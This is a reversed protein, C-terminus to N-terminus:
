LKMAQGIAVRVDHPLREVDVRIKSDVRFAVPVEAGGGGNRWVSAHFASSYSPSIVDRNLQFAEVVVAPEVPTYGRRGAPEVPQPRFRPQAAPPAAPPKAPPVTHETQNGPQPPVGTPARPDVGTPARPDVGTPARADVQPATPARADVAPQTRARPDVAPQTAGRPDVAPQSAGRPDVAPQTAGRPNVAGGAGPGAMPSVVRMPTLDRVTNIESLEGVALWRQENVKIVDGARFALPAPGTGKHQEWVRQHWENSLSKQVSFRNAAYAARVQGPTVPEAVSRGTSSGAPPVTAPKGPGRFSPLRPTRGLGRFYVHPLAAIALDGAASPEGKALARGANVGQAVAFSRQPTALLRATLALVGKGPGTAFAGIMNVNMDSIVKEHQLQRQREAEMKQRRAAAAREALKRARLEQLVMVEERPAFLGVSRGYDWVSRPFDDSLTTLPAKKKAEAVRVRFPRPDDAPAIEADIRDTAAKYGAYIDKDTFGGPSFKSPTRPEKTATAKPADDDDKTGAGMSAILAEAEAVAKARERAPDPPPPAAPRAPVAWRGEKMRKTIETQVETQWWLDSDREAYSAQKLRATVENLKDTLDKEGWFAVIIPSRSVGIGSAPLPQTVAVGNAAARASADANAELTSHAAGGSRAQTAGRQQLTHALEHAILERGRGTQPAYEGAGFVVHQGVTYARANMAKAAAAADADAHIRVASFDVGFRSEMQLRPADGFPEGCRGALRPGLAQPAARSGVVPASARRATNHDKVLPKVKM